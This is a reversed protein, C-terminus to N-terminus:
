PHDREDGVATVLAATLGIVVLSVGFDFVLASPAKVDGFWPLDMVAYTADLFTTGWGWGAVGVLVAFLLGTGLLQDSRALWMDSSESGHALYRLLICIGAVLGAIFGGGPANHGSFLLYAAFVAATRIVVDVVTELILLRPKM